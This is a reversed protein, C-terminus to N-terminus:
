WSVTIGDAAPGPPTLVFGTSTAGQIFSAGVVVGDSLVEHEGGGPISIGGSAPLEVTEGDVEISMPTETPNAYHVTAGPANPVIFQANTPLASAGNTWSYDNSTDPLVRVTRAAAVVAQESKVTFTYTGPALEDLPIDQVQGGVLNLDVTIPEGDRATTTLTANTSEEAFVRLVPVLDAFGEQTQIGTLAEIEVGPIVQSTSATMPDLIENGGTELGRTTTAYIRASVPGGTADIKVVPDELNPALSALDITAVSGAQVVIGTNGVSAVQGEVSYIEINLSAAVASPNAIALVSSRGTTTAGGLLWQQTAPESCESTAFGTHLMDDALRVFSAGALSLEGEPETLVGAEVSADAVPISTTETPGEPLFVSAVSGAGDIRSPAAPDDSIIQLFPAACVRQQSALAPQVEAVPAEMAVLEPVAQVTSVGLTLIAVGALGALARTGYLAARRPRLRRYEAEAADNAAAERDTISPNSAIDHAGREGGVEDSASQQTEDPDVDAEREDQEPGSENDSM